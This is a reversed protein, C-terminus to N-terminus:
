RCEGACARHTAYSHRLGHHCLREGFLVRSPEALSAMLARGRLVIEGGPLAFAPEVSLIVPSEASRSM